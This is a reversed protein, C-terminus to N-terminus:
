LPAGAGFAGTSTLTALPTVSTITTSSVSQSASVTYTGNGRATSFTYTGSAQITFTVAAGTRDIMYVINTSSDFGGVYTGAPIGLGSVMQGVAVNSPGSIEFISEGIAGGSVYTKTTVSVSSTLQEAVTTGATVGTGSIEQGYIVEGVTSSTVTMITSSISATYTQTTSFLLNGGSVNLTYEGINLTTVNLNTVDVTTFPIYTVAPVIDTGDSALVMRNGNAVSVGTQGSVKVTVDGSDTNNYVFYLKRNSPVVLTGGGTGTLELYMNRAVGTAGDPITITDTGGTCAYEAYGSIAQEILTGLNTNTTNGWSGSQDGTAILEIKLNPSYTSM